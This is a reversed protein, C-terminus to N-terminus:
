RRRKICDDLRQNSTMSATEALGAEEESANQLAACIPRSPRHRTLSHRRCTPNPTDCTAVTLTTQVGTVSIENDAHIDADAKEVYTQSVTVLIL